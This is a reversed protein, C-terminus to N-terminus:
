TDTHLSQSLLNFAKLCTTPSPRSLAIQTHFLWDRFVGKTLEPFKEDKFVQSM